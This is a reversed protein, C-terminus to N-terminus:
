YPRTHTSVACTAVRVLKSPCQHMRTQMACTSSTPVHASLTTTSFCRYPVSSLLIGYVVFVKHIYCNSFLFLKAGVQIVQEKSSDPDLKTFSTDVLMLKGSHESENNDTHWWHFDDQIAACHTHVDPNHAKRSSSSPPSSPPQGEQITDHQINFWDHM